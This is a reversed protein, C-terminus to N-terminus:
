YRHVPVTTNDSSVILGKKWNMASVNRAYGKCGGAIVSPVDTSADDLSPLASYGVIGATTVTEGITPLASIAALESDTLVFDFGGEKFCDLPTIRTCPIKAVLTSALPSAMIEPPLNIRYCVDTLKYSKGKFQVSAANISELLNYHEKMKDKTLINASESQATTVLYQVSYDMSENLGRYKLRYEHESDLRGGTEIWLKPIRTEMTATQLFSAFVAAVAVSVTLSVINMPWAALKKGLAAIGAQMEERKKLLFASM